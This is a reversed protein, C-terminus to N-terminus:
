HGAAPKRHDWSVIRNPRFRLVVRKAGRRAIEARVEPSDPVHPVTRAAAAAPLDHGHV